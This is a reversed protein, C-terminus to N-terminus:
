KVEGKLRCQWLQGRRGQADTVEVARPSDCRCNSVLGNPDRRTLTCDRFEFFSIAPEPAKAQHAACGLMLLWGGWLAVYGLIRGM